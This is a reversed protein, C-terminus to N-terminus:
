EESQKQFAFLQCCSILSSWIVLQVLQNFTELWVVLLINLSANFQLQIVIVNLCALITLINQIIEMLYTGIFLLHYNQYTSKRIISSTSKPLYMNPYELKPSFQLLFIFNTEYQYQSGKSDTQTPLYTSVSM